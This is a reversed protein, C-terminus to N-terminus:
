LRRWVTGKEKYETRCQTTHRPRTEQSLYACNCLHHLYSLYSTSTSGHRTNNCKTTRAPSGLHYSTSACVTRALNSISSPRSTPTMSLGNPLLSTTRTTTSPSPAMSQNTPTQANDLSSCSKKTSRRFTLGISHLRVSTCDYGLGTPYPCCERRMHRLRPRRGRLSM